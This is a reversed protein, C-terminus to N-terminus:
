IKSLELVDDTLNLHAIYGLHILARYASSNGSAKYFREIYHCDPLALSKLYSLPIKYDNLGSGGNNEMIVTWRKVVAGSVGRDQTAQNLIIDNAMDELDQLNKLLDDAKMSLSQQYIELSNKIEAFESLTDTMTDKRLNRTRTKWQTTRDELEKLRESFSSRVQTAISKQTNTDNNMTCLCLTIGKLAECLGNLKEIDKAKSSDVFYIGGRSRLSIANMNALERQLVHPRLFGHDIYTSNNQYDDLFHTCAKQVSEDQSSGKSLFNKSDNEWVITDVHHWEVKKDGVKKRELINIVVESDDVYARETKFRRSKDAFRYDRISQLLASHESIDPVDINYNNDKLVTRLDAPTSKFGSFEWWTLYGCTNVSTQKAVKPTAVAKKAQKPM